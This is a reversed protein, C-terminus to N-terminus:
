AMLHKANEIAADTIIEGSMLRAVESIRSNTDLFSVEVNTKENHQHKLVKFHHKARAAVQPLHTIAILQLNQGM